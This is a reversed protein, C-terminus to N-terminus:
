PSDSRLGGSPFSPKWGAAIGALFWFYYQTLLHLLVAGSLFLVLGSLALYARRDGGIVPLSRYLQHLVLVFISAFVILGPIGICALIYFWASHPNDTPWYDDGLTDRMSDYAAEFNSIGVGFLPNELALQVSAWVFSWRAAITGGETASDGFQTTALKFSVLDVLADLHYAVIGALVIGGALFLAKELGRSGDNKATRYAVYCAALGLLTMLWTGKSYTFVALVVLPFLLFTAAMLRGEFLLLSVLLVGFAMMNGIVNPNWLMVFGTVDTNSPLLYAILGSILIGTIFAVVVSLGFRGVSHAVFVSLAFYYLPRLAEVLDAGAIGWTPVNAASSALTLTVFVLVLMALERQRGAQALLSGRTPPHGMLLALLGLFLFDGAGIGQVYIEDFPLNQGIGLLVCILWVVPRMNAAM